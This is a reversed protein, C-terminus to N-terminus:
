LRSIKDYSVGDIWPKRLYRMRYIDVFRDGLQAIIPDSRRVTYLYAGMRFVGGSEALIGFNRVIRNWLRIPQLRHQAWQVPLAHVKWHSNRSSPRHPVTGRLAFGRLASHRALRLRLPEIVTPDRSIAYAAFTLGCVPRRVTPISIPLAVHLP